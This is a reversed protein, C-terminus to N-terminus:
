KLLPIICLFQLDETGTNTYAHVENPAVFITDSEKVHFENGLDDYVSGKGSLIFIEHEESHSHSGISGGPKVVFKRLAFNPVRDDKGWLWQITTGTSGYMDVSESKIEDVNKIKM